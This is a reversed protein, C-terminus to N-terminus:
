ADYIETDIPSYELMINYKLYASTKTRNLSQSNEINRSQDFDPQDSAPGLGRVYRPERQPKCPGLCYMCSTVMNSRLAVHQRAHHRVLLMQARQNCRGSSQRPDLSDCSLDNAHQQMVDCTFIRFTRWAHQPAPPIASLAPYMATAPPSHSVTATTPTSCMDWRLM